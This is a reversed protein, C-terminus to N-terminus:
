VAVIEIPHINEAATYEFLYLQDPLPGTLHLPRDARM